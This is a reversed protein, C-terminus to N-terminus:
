ATCPTLSALPLDHFTISPSPPHLFAISPPPLGHFAMSRWPIGHDAHPRCPTPMPLSARAQQTSSVPLSPGGRGAAVATTFYITQTPCPPNCVIRQRADELARRSFYCEEGARDRGDANYFGVLIYRDGSIVDNGAHKINGACHLPASPTLSPPSTTVCDTVSPAVTTVCRGRACVCVCAVERGSLSLSLSLPPPLPAFPPPARADRVGCVRQACGAHLHTM